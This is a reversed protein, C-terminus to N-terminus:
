ILRKQSKRKRLCRPLHINYFYFVPQTPIPDGLWKAYWWSFESKQWNMKGNKATSYRSPRIGNRQIKPFIVIMQKNMKESLAACHNLCINEIYIRVNFWIRNSFDFFITPNLNLKNDLFKPCCSQVRFVTYRFNRPIVREQSSPDVFKLHIESFNTKLPSLCFIAM